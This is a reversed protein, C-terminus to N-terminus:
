LDVRSQLESTHEESRLKTGAIVACLLVMWPLPTPISLSVSATWSADAFQHPQAAPGPLAPHSVTVPFTSTDLERPLGAVQAAHAVDVSQSRLPASGRHLSEAQL